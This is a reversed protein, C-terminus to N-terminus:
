LFGGIVLMSGAVCGFAIILWFIDWEPEFKM